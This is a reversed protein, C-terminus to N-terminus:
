EDDEKAQVISVKISSPPLQIKEGGSTIDTNDALGLKRAIINANFAGVTAGEFQQTEIITKIAKTIAWFDEYGVEKEYRRFTNEDIDAFLCFSGISMPTQTPVDMTKGALDGSKISEKKNWVKGLMFEFYNTAELWFADPTYIFDRGHKNRFQWYNNGIPAGM